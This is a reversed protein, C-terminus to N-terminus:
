RAGRSHDRQHAPSTPSSEVTRALALTGRDTITFVIRPRGGEREVRGAIYGAFALKDVTTSRLAEGASGHVLVYRWPTPGRPALGKPEGVVRAGEALSRMTWLLEGALVLPGQLAALTARGRRPM